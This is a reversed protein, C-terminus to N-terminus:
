EEQLTKLDSLRKAEREREERMKDEVQRKLLEGELMDEQMQRVYRLKFDHLQDKIM